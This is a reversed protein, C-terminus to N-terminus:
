WPAARGRNHVGPQHGSSYIENEDYAEKNLGNLAFNIDLRDTSAIKPLEWTAKGDDRVETPFFQLGKYDFAGPPLVMHLNFKQAQPTYNYITVRM